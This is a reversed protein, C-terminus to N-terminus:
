DGQNCVTININETASYTCQAPLDINSAALDVKLVPLMSIDDLAIDGTFSTGSVYAFRIQVSDMGGYGASLIVSAEQWLDQNDTIPGMINTFTGQSGVRAEVNLPGQTAGFAHYWFNLEISNVGTLNFYPSLLNASSNPNGAGASTEVYLYKGGAVGPNHDAGGNATPGTNSSGTGNIDVTWDVDDGTANTWGGSLTCPTGPGTGCTAMGEFDENYPFTSITQATGVLSAFAVGILLTIKKM